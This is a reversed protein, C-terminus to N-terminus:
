RGTENVTMALRNQLNRPELVVDPHVRLWVRVRFTPLNRKDGVEIVARVTSGKGSTGHGYHTVLSPREGAGTHPLSGSPFSSQLPRLRVTVVTGTHKLITIAVV